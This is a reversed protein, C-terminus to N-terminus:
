TLTLPGAAEAVFHEGSQSEMLNKDMNEMGTQGGSWPLVATSTREM